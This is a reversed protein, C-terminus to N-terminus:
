GEQGVDRRWGAPVTGERSRKGRESRLWVRRRESWARQRACLCTRLVYHQEEIHLVSRYGPCCLAGRSDPRAKSAALGEYACQKAACLRQWECAREWDRKISEPIKLPTDTM